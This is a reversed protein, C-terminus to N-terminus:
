ARVLREIRPQGPWFWAPGLDFVAGNHPHAMIRGGFRDRAEMLHYDIGSRQLQSALSLGALGGGVILIDTQGPIM